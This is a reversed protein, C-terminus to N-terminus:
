LLELVLEPQRAIVARQNRVFIPREILGHHYLTSGFM